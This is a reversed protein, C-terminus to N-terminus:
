AQMADGSTQGAKAMDIADQISNHLRNYEEVYQSRKDEDTETNAKDRLDQLTDLLTASYTSPDLEGQRYPNYPYDPRGPVPADVGEQPRWDGRRNFDEWEKVTRFKPLGLRSAAAKQLLVLRTMEAPDLEYSGYGSGKLVNEAGNYTPTALHALEERYLTPLEYDGASMFLKGQFPWSRGSYLSGKVPGLPVVTAQAYEGPRIFDMDSLNMPKGNTANRMVIPPIYGAKRRADLNRRDADTRALMYLRNWRNRIAEQEDANAKGADGYLMTRIDARPFTTLFAGPHRPDPMSRGYPGTVNVHPNWMSPVASSPPTTGNYDVLGPYYGHSMPRGRRKRPNALEMPSVSISPLTDAAKKISKWDTM